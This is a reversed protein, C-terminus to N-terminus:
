ELSMLSTGSYQTTAPRPAPPPLHSLTLPAKLAEGSDDTNQTNVFKKFSKKSM